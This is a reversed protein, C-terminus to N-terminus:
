QLKIKKNNTKEKISIVKGKILDLGKHKGMEYSKTFLIQMGLCIGFLRKSKDLVFKNLVNILDKDNLLKMANQFAGVGPLILFDSKLIDDQRNTILSEHGIKELARKISLLNGCGYDIISIKEHKLKLLKSVFQFKIFRKVKM